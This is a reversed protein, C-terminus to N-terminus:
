RLRLKSRPTTFMYCGKVYLFEANIIGCRFSFFFFVNVKFWRIERMEHWCRDDDFSVIQRWVRFIHYECRVNLFYGFSAFKGLEHVASCRYWGAHHREIASFNLYGDSSQAVPPPGDDKLWQPECPPNADVACHLSVPM